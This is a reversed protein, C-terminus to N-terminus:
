KTDAYLGTMVVIKTDAFAADERLLRCIERGDLQPLFADALILNPRYTRALDLGDQGDSSVAGYGLNACVRQMIAQNDPDGDVLMVLPRRVESPSANAAIALSQRRLEASKREFLHPPADSWFIEKYAPAAKCFCTLCNTCVVTRDRTLCSCWDAEAADFVVRCNACIVDYRRPAADVEAVPEPKKMAGRALEVVEDIAYPRM